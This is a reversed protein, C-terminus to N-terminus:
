TLPTKTLERWASLIQKPDGSGSNARAKLYEDEWGQAQEIYDDDVVDTWHQNDRVEVATCECDDHYRDGLKRKGRPRGGRGIVVTRYVGLKKDFVVGKADYMADETRTALMKCFECAGPRAVRIWRSGTQAVNVLTTDRAGDYVARQATSTLRSLGQPGDGGLAWRASSALREAPVAPAAVATYTSAPASQEFWTAALEAAVAVYPLVLEPYADIVFQAFDVGPQDAAAWLAAIDSAALQNLHNLLFRREQPSM